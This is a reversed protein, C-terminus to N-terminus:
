TIANAFALGSLVAGELTAPYPGDTYDGVAALGPSSAASQRALGLTCVVRARTEVATAM